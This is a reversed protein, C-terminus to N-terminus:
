VLRGEKDNWCYGMQLLRNGGSGLGLWRKCDKLWVWYLWFLGRWGWVDEGVFGWRVFMGVMKM